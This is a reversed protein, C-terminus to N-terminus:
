CFCLNACHCLICSLLGVCCWEARPMPAHALSNVIVDYDTLSRANGFSEFTIWNHDYRQAYQSAVLACRPPLKTSRWIARSSASFVHEWPHLILKNPTPHQTIYQKPLCLWGDSRKETLGRVLVLFQQTVNAGLCCRQSHRFLPPRRPQDSDNSHIYKQRYQFRASCIFCFVVFVKVGFKVWSRVRQGRTLILANTQDAQATDNAVSRWGTCMIWHSLQILLDHITKKRVAAWKGGGLCRNM